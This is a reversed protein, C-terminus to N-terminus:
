KINLCGLSCEVIMMWGFYIPCLQPQLSGFVFFSFYFHIYFLPLSPFSFIYQKCRHRDGAQLCPFINQLRRDFLWCTVDFESKFNKITVQRASPHHLFSDTYHQCTTFGLLIFSTKQNSYILCIAM